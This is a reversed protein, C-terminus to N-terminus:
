CQFLIETIMISINHKENSHLLINVQIQSQTTYVYYNHLIYIKEDFEDKDESIKRMVGASALFFNDINM